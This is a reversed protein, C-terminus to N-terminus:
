CDVALGYIGICSGDSNTKLCKIRVVWQLYQALGATENRSALYPIRHIYTAWNFSGFIEGLKYRNNGKKSEFTIINFIVKEEM